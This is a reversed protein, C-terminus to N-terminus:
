VALCVRERCSARGIEGDEEVRKHEGTAPDKYLDWLLRFDEAVEFTTPFLAGPFDRVFVLPIENPDDGVRCYVTAAVGDNHKQVFTPSGAGIGFTLGVESLAHAVGDPACLYALRVVGPFPTIEAVTVWPSREAELLDTVLMAARQDFTALETRLDNLSRMSCVTRPGDTLPPFM